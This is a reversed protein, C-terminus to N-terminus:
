FDVYIRVKSLYNKFFSNINEVSSMNVAKKYFLEENESWDPLILGVCELQIKRFSSFSSLAM